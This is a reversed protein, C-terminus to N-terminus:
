DLLTCLKTVYRAPQWYSSNIKVILFNAFYKHIKGNGPFVFWFIHKFALLLDTINNIMIVRM